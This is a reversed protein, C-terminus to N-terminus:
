AKPKPSRAAYPLTLTPSGEGNFVIIDGPHLYLIHEYEPFVLAGTGNCLWVTRRCDREDKHVGYGGNIGIMAGPFTFSATGTTNCIRDMLARQMKLEARYHVGWREVRRVTANGGKQVWGLISQYQWRTGKKCKWDGLKQQNYRKEATYLFRKGIGGVFGYGGAGRYDGTAMNTQCVDPLNQVHMYASDPNYGAAQAGAREIAYIEEWTGNVAHLVKGRPAEKVHNARSDSTFSDVFSGCGEPFAIEDKFVLDVHSDMHVAKLHLYTHMDSPLLDGVDCSSMTASSAGLSVAHAAEHLSRRPKPGHVVCGVAASGEASRCLTDEDESGESHATYTYDASFFHGVQAKQVAQLQKDPSSQKRAAGRKKNRQQKRGEASRKRGM